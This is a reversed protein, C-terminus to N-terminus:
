SRRTPLSWASTAALLAFPFAMGAVAGNVAAIVPKNLSMLYTLRGDFDGTVADVADVAADHTGDAGDSDALDSLLKMDAGACFARGAGTVVIGVM